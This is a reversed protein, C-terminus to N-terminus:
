IKLQRHMLSHCRPCLWMVDLPQKYDRHHAGIKGIKKCQDCRKPRLLSGVRVAYQLKQRSLNKDHYKKVMRKTNLSANRRGRETRMYKITKDNQCDHCIYYIGSKTTTRVMFDNGIKKCHCCTKM